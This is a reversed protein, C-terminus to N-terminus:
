APPPDAVVRRGCYPCNRTAIVLHRMGLLQKHCHPCLLEQVRGRKREVLYMGGFMVILSPLWPVAGLLVEAAPAGFREVYWAKIPDRNRIAITAAVVTLVVTIACVILMGRLYLRASRNFADITTPAEEALM